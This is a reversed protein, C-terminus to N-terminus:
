KSMREMARVVSSFDEDRGTASQRALEAASVQAAAATAPMASPLGMATDLILRYDKFMLRLPFAPPYVEDLVNDLKSKQSPSVVATAGLVEILRERELGAKLGFALAEALAQIGLGLLTNVCLKMTAGSGIPGMHYAQRSLVQLIALCREYIAKDGGVFIVLEGREAVTTTGSVPADLVFVGKEHALDHMRRSLSPSVTSMEIFVTGPRASDLAGGPSLMVKEVAVDDALSSLVIEAHAALEDAESAVKAGLKELLLARERHRNYITVEYGAALLRAAMRSGMGGMGIFGLRPKDKIALMALERERRPHAICLEM